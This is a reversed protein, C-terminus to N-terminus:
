TRDHLKIKFPCAKLLPRPDFVISTNINPHAVLEDLVTEQKVCVPSEQIRGVSSFYDLFKFSGGILHDEYQVWLNPVKYADALILGHLSSSIVMECSCLEDIVNHWDNYCDLRILRISDDKVFEEVKPNSLDDVHPILGVKYKKEVKPKYILPMLLAPDGYVEPCQVGQQLLYERTLKGRVACVKAPKASILNDGGKIAGAGWIITNPNTFIDIVSGIVEYNNFRDGHFTNLINLIRQDTLEKLLYYNLEDGFNRKKIRGFKLDIWANLIVYDGASALHCYLYNFLKSLIEQIRHM